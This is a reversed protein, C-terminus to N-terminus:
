PAPLVAFVHVQVLTNGPLVAAGNWCAGVRFERGDAIAKASVPERSYPYLDSWKHGQVHLWGTDGFLM